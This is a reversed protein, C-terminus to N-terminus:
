TDHCTIKFCHCYSLCPVAQSPWFNTEPVTLLSFDWHLPQYLLSKLHCGGISHSLINRGHSGERHVLLWLLFLAALQRMWMICCCFGKIGNTLARLGCCIGHQCKLGWIQVPAQVPCKFIKYKTSCHCGAFLWIGPIVTSQCCLYWKSKVYTNWEKMDLDPFIVTDWM